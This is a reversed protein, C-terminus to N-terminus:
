SIVGYHPHRADCYECGLDSFDEFDKGCHDCFQPPFGPDFDYQCGLSDFCDNCFHDWYVGDKDNVCYPFAEKEEDKCHDCVRVPTITFPSGQAIEAIAKIVEPPIEKHM